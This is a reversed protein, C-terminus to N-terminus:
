ISGGRNRQLHGSGSASMQMVRGLPAVTVLSKGRFESQWTFGMLPDGEAQWVQGIAHWVSLQCLTNHFAVFSDLIIRAQKSPDYLAPFALQLNGTSLHWDVSLLNCHIALQNRAKWETLHIKEQRIMPWTSVIEMIKIKSYEEIYSHVSVNENNKKLIKKAIRAQTKKIKCFFKLIMKDLKIEWPSQVLNASFGIFKQQIMWNLFM